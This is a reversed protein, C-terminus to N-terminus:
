SSWVRWQPKMWSMTQLPLSRGFLVTPFLLWVITLSCRPRVVVSGWFLCATNVLQQFVFSKLALSAKWISIAPQWSCHNTTVICWLFTCELLNSNLSSNRKQDKIFFLFFDNVAPFHTMNAIPSDLKLDTYAWRLDTFPFWQCWRHLSCHPIHYGESRDILCSKTFHFLWGSFGM